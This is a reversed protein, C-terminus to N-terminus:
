FREKELGGSEFSEMPIFASSNFHIIPLLIRIFSHKLSINLNNLDYRQYQNQLICPAVHIAYLRDYEESNEQKEYDGTDPQYITYPKEITPDLSYFSDIYMSYKAENNKVQYATWEDEGSGGAGHWHGEIVFEGTEKNIGYIVDYALYQIQNDHYTFIATLIRQRIEM